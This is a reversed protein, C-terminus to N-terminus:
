EDGYYEDDPWDARIDLLIDQIDRETLRKEENDFMVDCLCKEQELWRQLFSRFNTNRRRDSARHFDYMEFAHEFTNHERWRTAITVYPSSAWDTEERYGSIKNRTINALLTKDFVDYMRKCDEELRANEIAAKRNFEEIDSSDEKSM